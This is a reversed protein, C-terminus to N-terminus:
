FQNALKRIEERELEATVHTYINMTVDITSHGLYSQVVKPPIGREQARTAFTHRMAHPCFTEMLEPKRHEAAAKKEEARNVANVTSDIYRGVSLTMLPKGFMTTFVLHELGKVPQWKDGLMMRLKAQEVKHRRLRKAIEPLMPITRKSEGTKVPGKYYDKGAIKIMTGNVHIEMKEFDIDRWELGNIEGIRMGTFFGVYFIDAYFPKRKAACELFAKQEQETLARRRPNREESEVKPLISKEVPNIIIIGNMAAQHFIMNMTQRTNEIYGSSYGERKMKNLIRQIHEPRVAQLKMHGIEPKVHKYCKENGIITTERVVNERYEKLWTKYWSDVTLRDPRAYVGHDMEYKADRLKRQVEKLDTGYITYRKGNFTYRAQYRGDKRLSIGPPLQKKDAAM